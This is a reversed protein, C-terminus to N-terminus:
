LGPMGCGATQHTRARTGTHQSVGLFAFSERHVLKSSLGGRWGTAGELDERVMVAPLRLVRYGARVLRRERAADASAQQEHFQGDVEM